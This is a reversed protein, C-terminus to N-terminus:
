ARALKWKRKPKPEKPAKPTKPPKEGKARKEKVPRVRKVRPQAKEKEVPIKPLVGLPQAPIAARLDAVTRVRRGLAEVLFALVLGTVLGLGGAGGLILPINPFKPRPSVTTQGIPTLNADSIEALQRMQGSKESADNYLNTRRDIEDQVLKISLAQDGQQFLKAVQAGILNSLDAPPAVLPGSTPGHQAEVTAVQKALNDRRQRLAVLQPNNPGLTQSASGLALDMQALQARGTKDEKIVKRSPRVLRILGTLRRSEINGGRSTLLMGANRELNAKLAQLEVLRERDRAAQAEMTTSTARASDRQQGVSEELYATRINDAVVRALDPATSQYSIEMINTDPVLDAGIGFIIRRAAWRRFDDGKDPAQQWAALMDPNELWGMEEVVRGAVQEDHIIRAQSGVYAGYNKGSVSFGTIPDPKIIDLMVRSKAEYRPPFTLIVFAGGLVAGILPTVVLLKRGWVIRALRALNM